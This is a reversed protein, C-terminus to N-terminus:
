VVSRLVRKGFDIPTPLDIPPPTADRELLSDFAAGLADANLESDIGFGQQDAVTATRTGAATIIWKGWMVANLVM